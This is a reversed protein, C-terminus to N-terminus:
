VKKFFSLLTKRDTLPALFAALLWCV